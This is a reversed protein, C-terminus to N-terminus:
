TTRGYNIRGFSIWMNISCKYCNFNYFSNYCNISDNKLRWMIAKRVYNQYMQYYEGQQNLLEEHTGWEVIRGNNLVYIRDYDKITNLRHAVAIVTHNRSVEDFTNCINKETELDLASTPEDLLLISANKVIARAITLRQRQGGSLNNGKETLITDIGEPLEKIFKECGSMRLALMIDENIVDPNGIRINDAISMPFLTTEQSILALEKRIEEPTFHYYDTGQYFIRGKETSIQRSILKIITSKGSGSEGVFAIREGKKVNFSVNVLVKENGYGFTVNNFSIISSDTMASDNKVVTLVEEEPQIDIVDFVRSVSVLATQSRVVLQYCGSLPEILKKITSIYAILVGMTIANNFVLVGGVCIAIAMPVEQIARSIPELNYQALDNENSTKFTKYLAAEYRDMMKKQLNYSKIVEAGAFAEEVNNNTLGLEKAYQFQRLKIPKLLKVNLPVMIALPFLCIVLPANMIVLYVSYVVTLIPVYLCDKFYGSMFGALEEIDETVREMLDGYNCQSIYEPSAKMLSNVADNRLKKLLGAGVFGTMAVVMYNSAIGVCIVILMKLIINQIEQMLNGVSICEIIQRLIDIIFVTAISATVGSIAAIIIQGWYDKSYALLRKMYVDNGKQKISYALIDQTSYAKLLM